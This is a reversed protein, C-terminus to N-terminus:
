PTESSVGEDDSVLPQQGESGTCTIGVPWPAESSAGEKDIVRLICGVTVERSSSGQEKQHCRETVGAEAMSDEWDMGDNIDVLYEDINQSSASSNSNHDSM